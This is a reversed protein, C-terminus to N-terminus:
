CGADGFAVSEQGYLLRNSLVLESTNGAIDRVAHVLGSEADVSIHAKMGFCWQRGKKSFFMESDRAKDKNKTSTPAFILTADVATGAKFPLGSHSFHKNVASLIQEVM